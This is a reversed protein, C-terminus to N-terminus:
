ARRAGTFQTLFRADIARPVATQRPSSGRRCASTRPLRTRTRHRSAPGPSPSDLIVMGTSSSEPQSNTDISSLARLRKGASACRRSCASHDSAGAATGGVGFAPRRRGHRRRVSGTVPRRCERLVLRERIEVRRASRVARPTQGASMAGYSPHRDLWARRRPDGSHSAVPGGQSPRGRRSLGRVRPLDRREGARQCPLSSGPGEDAGASCGRGQGLVVSPLCAARPEDRASPASPATTDIAPSSVSM